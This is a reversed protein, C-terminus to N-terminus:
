CNYVLSGQLTLCLVLLLELDLKGELLLPQWVVMFPIGRLQVMRAIANLVLCLPGDHLTLLCLDFIANLCKCLPRQQWM